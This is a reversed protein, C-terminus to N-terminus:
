TVKVISGVRLSSSIAEVFNEGDFSHVIRNNEATDRKWSKMNEFFDKMVSLSVLCALALLITPMANQNIEPIMELIGLIVFYINAAKTFQVALDLPLFSWLSYKATRIINTGYRNTPTQCLVFFRDAQRKKSDPPSKQFEM